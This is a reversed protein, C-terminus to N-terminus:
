LPHELFNTMLHNSTMDRFGMDKRNEAWIFNTILEQYLSLALPKPKIGIIEAPNWDPMVGFYTKNGLLNTHKHQLKLIKKGLKKLSNQLEFENIINSKSKIYIPRVQLLYVQNKTLAFEIDLYTDKFKNELEHVLDFIKKFYKKPKYKNQKSLILRYTGKKGSTVATTDKGYNIDLVYYPSYNKIDCTTIVGSAIVNKVMSQVLIENKPSSYKKYSKIVKKIASILDTPNKPNINLVSEFYGAFSKNKKDEKVNSSRIIIKDKFKKKIKKIIKKPNKKFDTVKFIFLKPIHGKKIKLKKLTQAKSIFISM